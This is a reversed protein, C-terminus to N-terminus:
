SRAGRSAGRERMSPSPIPTLSTRLLEENAEGLLPAPALQADDDELWPAGILAYSGEIAHEVDQVIRRNSWQESQLLMAPTTMVTLPYGRLALDHLEASSKTIAWSAILAQLEDNHELRSAQTSFREARLEPMEIISLLRDWLAPAFATVYVWGDSCAYVGYTASVTLGVRNAELGLNLAPSRHELNTAVVDQMSLDLYEGEGTEDRLLANAVTGAFASLGAQYEAQAGFNSLPPKDPDGTIKLQGGSALGTINTGAYKAFPGNDGFPTVRTMLLSPRRAHLAAWSLGIPDLIHAHVDTIFVDASDLLGLLAGRNAEVLDITVSRKGANIHLHAASTEIDPEDRLFPGEHRLPHGGPPEVLVVEAGASACLRGAFAAAATRSLEVVRLDTLVDNV